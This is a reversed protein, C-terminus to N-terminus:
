QSQCPQHVAEASNESNSPTKRNKNSDNESLTASEKATKANTFPVLQNNANLDGDVIGPNQVLGVKRYVKNTGHM